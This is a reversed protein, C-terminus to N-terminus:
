QMPQPSRNSRNSSTSASSATKPYMLSIFVGMMSLLHLPWRTSPLIYKVGIPAAVYAFTGKTQGDADVLMIVSKISMTVLFLDSTVPEIDKPKKVDGGEVVLEYQHTDSSLAVIRNSTRSVVYMNSQMTFCDSVSTSGPPSSELHDPCPYCNGEPGVGSSNFTGFNCTTHQGAYLSCAISMPKYVAVGNDSCGWHTATSMFPLDGAATGYAFVAGAEDGCINYINWDNYSPSYYLYQDDVQNHYSPHESGGCSGPENLDYLGTVM